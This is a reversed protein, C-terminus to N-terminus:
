LNQTERAMRSLGSDHDPLASVRISRLGAKLPRAAAQGLEATSVFKIYRKDIGFIDAAQCAFDYKDLRSNGSLHVLGSFNNLALTVLKDALDPAYTPTGFQDNPVRVDEHRVLATVLRQVFNKGPLTQERSYVWTTRAIIANPLQRVFAEALLKYEGFKNLAAPKDIENYPGATGDFVYDTSIFVLKSGSRAAALCVTQTGEVNAKYFEEPQSECADVNTLAACLYITKPNLRTIMASIDTKNELSLSVLYASSRSNSTGTVSYGRRLLESMVFQGVQGSAGIVLNDM